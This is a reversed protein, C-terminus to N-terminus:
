EKAEEEEDKEGEDGDEISEKAEEDSAAEEAVGGYNTLPLVRPDKPVYYM